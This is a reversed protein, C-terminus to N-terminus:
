NGCVFSCEATWTVCSLRGRAACLAKLPQHPAQRLRVPPFVHSMLALLQRLSPACTATVAKACQYILIVIAPLIAM